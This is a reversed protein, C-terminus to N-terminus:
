KYAFSSSTVFVALAGATRKYITSDPDVSFVAL